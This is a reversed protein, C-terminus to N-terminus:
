KSPCAISASQQREVRELLTDSAIAKAFARCLFLDDNVLQSVDTIM